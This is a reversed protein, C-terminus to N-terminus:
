RPEFYIIPTKGCCHHDVPPAPDFVVLWNFRWYKAAYKRGLPHLTPVDGLM